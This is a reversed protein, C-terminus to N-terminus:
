FCNMYVHGDTSLAMGFYWAPAHTEFYKPWVFWSGDITHTESFGPQWTLEADVMIAKVQEITLEGEFSWIDNRPDSKKVKKLHKKLAKVLKTRTQEYSM